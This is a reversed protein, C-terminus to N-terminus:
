TQNGPALSTGKRTCTGWHSFYIFSAHRLTNLSILQLAAMEVKESNDPDKLLVPIDRRAIGAMWLTICAEAGVIYAVWAVAINFTEWNGLIYM